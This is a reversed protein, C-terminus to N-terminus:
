QQWPFQLRKRLSLNAPKLSMVEVPVAVYEAFGGYGHDLLNAYVEDGPKFQTVGSGVAEVRGAVDVGPIRHKPRLLGLTARSFFPKARMSRWDAPNVSVAQVKVLAEDAAPSPREVEAMQLVQPPGYRELLFAKM